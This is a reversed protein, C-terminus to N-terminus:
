EFLPNFIRQSGAEAAAVVELAAVAVLSAAAVAEEGVVEVVGVLSGVVAQRGAVVLVTIRRLIPWKSLFIKVGRRADL